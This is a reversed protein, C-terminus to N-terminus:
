DMETVVPTLTGRPSDADRADTAGSGDADLEEVVVSPPLQDTPDCGNALPQSDLIDPVEDVRPSLPPSDHRRHGALSWQRQVLDREKATHLAILADLVAAGLEGGEAGPGAVYGPPDDLEGRFPRMSVVNRPEEWESPHDDLILAHRGYDEYRQGDFLMRLTKQTRCLNEYNRPRGAFACIHSPTFVVGEFAAELEEAAQTLLGQATAPDTISRQTLASLDMQLPPCGKLVHERLPDLAQLIARARGGDSKTVVRMRFYPALTALFERINPRVWVDEELYGAKGWYHITIM